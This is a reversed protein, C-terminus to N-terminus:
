LAAKYVVLTDVGKVERSIAGSKCLVMDIQSGKSIFTELAACTKDCESVMLIPFANGLYQYVLLSSIM